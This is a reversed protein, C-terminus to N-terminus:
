PHQEIEFNLSAVNGIVATIYLRTPEGNGTLPTLTVLGDSGSTALVTQTALVPASPCRGQVPCDPTWQDLTEYLAVSGGAMPHGVADTVRLVVSAPTASASLTQGAGSVAALQAVESHVSYIQFTACTTNGPLCAYPLADAGEALPGINLQPSAIGNADSTAAVTAPTVGTAASWNINKGALPTSGNLM